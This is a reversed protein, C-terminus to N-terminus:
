NLANFNNIFKIKLPYDRLYKEQENINRSINNYLFDYLGRVNSEITNYDISLQLNARKLTSSFTNSLFGKWLPLVLKDIERVQPDANSNSNIYDDFDKMNRMALANLVIVPEILLVDKESLTDLLLEFRMFFKELDRLSFNFMNTILFIFDAMWIAETSLDKRRQYNYYRNNEYFYQIKDKLKIM